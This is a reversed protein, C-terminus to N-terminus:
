RPTDGTDSADPLDKRFYRNRYEVPSVGHIRVFAECLRKSSHFGCEAAIEKMFMTTETILQAARVIRIERLKEKFPKGLHQKFLRCGYSPSFRFERRVDDFCLDPNSYNAELFSELWVKWHSQSNPSRCSSEQLEEKQSANDLKGVFDLELPEETLDLPAAPTVVFLRAEFREKSSIKLGTKRQVNQLQVDVTAIDLKLSKSNELGDLGTKAFFIEIPGQSM